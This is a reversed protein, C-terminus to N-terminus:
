ASEEDALVLSMQGQNMSADPSDHQIPSGDLAATETVTSNRTANMSGMLDDLDSLQNAEGPRKYSRERLIRPFRLAFGSKHRDSRALGEFGLEFVRLPELARVPGYREVTHKRIWIDLSRIETDTLGSYAKAIPVLTGDKWISFTYDTYLSARRGSGPQAATLVADVSYPDVKWKFWVGRKRGVEYPKGRHKLMIGEAGQERAQARLARAEDWSDVPLLPSLGLLDNIQTALLRELGARRVSLPRDSWAAGDLRLLDYALFAVPHTLAWAPSPRKRNLRQQL